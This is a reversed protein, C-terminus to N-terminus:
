PLRARRFFIFLSFRILDLTCRAKWVWIWGNGKWEMGELPWFPLDCLLFFVRVKSLPDLRKKKRKKEM